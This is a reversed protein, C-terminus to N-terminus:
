TFIHRLISSNKYKQSHLFHHREVGGGAYQAHAAKGATAGFGIAPLARMIDKVLVNLM